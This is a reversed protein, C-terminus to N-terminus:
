ADQAEEEKEGLAAHLEARAHKLTLRMSSALMSHGEAEAKAIQSSAFEIARELMAVREKKSLRITRSM